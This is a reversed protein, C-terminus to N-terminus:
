RGGSKSQAYEWDLLGMMLDDHWAGDVLAAERERGEVIFGCKEYARIARANYAIVRVSLRHLTLKGFAYNLILRITETGLGRGLRQPDEIGIALAARCDRADLRDLRVEGILTQAEIVWAHKHDSIRQVWRRAADPTMPRLDDRSGGYMHHIEPDIGLKLRADIDELRPPRLTVREGQLVPVDGM